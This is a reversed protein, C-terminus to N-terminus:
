KSMCEISMTDANCLFSLSTFVNLQHNTNGIMVSLKKLIKPKLKHGYTKKMNFLIYHVVKWYLSLYDYVTKETDYQYKVESNRINDIIILSKEKSNAFRM